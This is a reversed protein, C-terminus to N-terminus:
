YDEDNYYNNTVYTPQPTGYFISNCINSPQVVIEKKEIRGVNKLLQVFNEVKEVASRTRTYLKDIWPNFAKFNQANKYSNLFTRLKWPNTENIINSQFESLSDVKENLQALEEQHALEIQEQTKNKKLDSLAKALTDKDENLENISDEYGKKLKHIKTEIDSATDRTYRISERRENQLTDKIEEVESMLKKIETEKEVIKTSLEATEVKSITDLIVSATKPDEIDLELKSVTKYGGTFPNGEKKELVVIKNEKPTQEKRITEVETLAKALLDRTSNLANYESLSINVSNVTNNEM